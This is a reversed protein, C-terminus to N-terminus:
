PQFVREADEPSVLRTAHDDTKVEFWERGNITKLDKSLIKRGNYTGLSVKVPAPTTETSAGDTPMIEPQAGVAQPATPVVTKKKGM